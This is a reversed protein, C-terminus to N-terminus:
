FVSQSGGVEDAPRAGRTALTATLCGLALVGGLVLWGPLGFRLATNTIVLPAAMSGVSVAFSQFGQYAGARDRPTLGFSLAWTASSSVVEGLAHVTAALVMCVVAGTVSFKAAAWALVGAVLFGLGSWLMMRGASPIDRTLRSSPVQLAVVVGTNILLLASVLAPPAATHASVWQPHAVDTVAFNMVMMASGLGLVIFRPNRWPSVSPQPTGTTGARVTEAPDAEPDDGAIGADASRPLRLGIVGAVLYAAAAVVLSVRYALQTDLALPIAALGSGAAIGANAVTRWLAQARVRAAGSFGRAVAAQTATGGFWAAGEALAALATLWILSRPTADPVFAYGGLGVAQVFFAGGILLRASARDAFHGGLYSSAAGAISAVFLVTGVTQIPVGLMRTFYLTTLGLFLGRGLSRAASTALLIWLLRDSRIEKYLTFLRSPVPVRAM